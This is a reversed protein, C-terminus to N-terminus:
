SLEGEVTDVFRRLQQKVRELNQLVLETDVSGYKHVIANRMGNLRKLDEALKADIVRNKRLIDINEVTSKM